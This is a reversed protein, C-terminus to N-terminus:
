KFNMARPGPSTQHTYPLPPPCNGFPGILIKVEKKQCTPCTHLSLCPTAVFCPQPCCCARAWVATKAVETLAAALAEYLQVTGDSFKFLTKAYEPEKQRPFNEWCQQPEKSEVWSAPPSSISQPSSAVARCIVTSSAPVWPSHAVGQLGPLPHGTDRSVFFVRAAM